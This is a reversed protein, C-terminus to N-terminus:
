RRAALQFLGVDSDACVSDAAVDRSWKVSGSAADLCNLVGKAGFTYLNGDIFTPTARPGPGAVPEAFRSADEHAWVEHGTEADLCVVAETEGRQEQTYLRNGVIAVSSWAPGVRQKWLLKPPAANWDTAITGGQAGDRLPGRFAPWDGEQLAVPEPVLDSPSAPSPTEKTQERSALFLEEAKPAWRWHLDTKQDGHVGDMRILTFYGWTLCLVALLGARRLALSNSRALALWIVWATLVVPLAFFLIGFPKMSPDSVLATLIGTSVLAVFGFLRDKGSARSAAFWWILFLLVFLATVGVMSFFGLFIPLELQGVLMRYAWFTAVIALGPWVRPGSSTVAAPKASPEPTMVAESM